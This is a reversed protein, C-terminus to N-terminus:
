YYQLLNFSILPFFKFLYHNNNRNIVINLNKKEYMLFRHRNDIIQLSYINIRNTSLIFSFSDNDFKEEEELIM